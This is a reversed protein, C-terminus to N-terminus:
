PILARRARHAERLKKLARVRGENRTRRAKIGQRNWAEEQSLKKDFRREQQVESKTDAERRKLYTDYGCDYASLRGRDLVLIRNAMRRAFARDHSVFLLTPVHRLLYDELWTITEIDLHNTPEDLLLLDPKGAVARCFLVRRKMGASLDSFQREGDLRTRSLVQEVATSLTWGDEADLRSQLTDIRRANDPQAAKPDKCRRHHEALAQGLPGMGAAVVEFITGATGRPVEQEMAAITLGQRRWIDGSDPSQGGHLINLLTSKGVGNRGLLCIRQGSEIQLRANEILPAGGLGWSLDRLTILAM